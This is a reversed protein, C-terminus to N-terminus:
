PARPPWVSWGFTQPSFDIYVCDTYQPKELVLVYDKDEGVTCRPAHKKTVNQRIQYRNFRIEQGHSDYLTRSFVATEVLGCPGSPGQTSVWETGRLTFEKAYSTVWLACTRAQMTIRLDLLARLNAATKAACFQWTAQRLEQEGPSLPASPSPEDTRDPDTNSAPCLYPMHREIVQDVNHPDQTVQELVENAKATFLTTDLKNVTIENLHCKMRRHKKQCNGTLYTLPRTLDSRVAHTDRLGMIKVDEASAAAMVFLFFTLSAVARARIDMMREQMREQTSRIPRGGKLDEDRKPFPKRGCTPWAPTARRLAQV